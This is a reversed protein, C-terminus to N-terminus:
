ATAQNLTLTQFHVGSLLSLQESFRYKWQAFAQLLAVQKKQDIDIKESVGGGYIRRGFLNFVILSNNTGAVLSSKSKFKHTSTYNLSFRKTTYKQEEDRFAVNTAGSISDHLITEAAKSVGASLKGFTKATFNTELTAGLVGTRYKAILNEHQAFRM